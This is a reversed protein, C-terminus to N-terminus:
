VGEAVFVPRQKYEKLFEDVGKWYIEKEHIGGVCLLSDIEVNNAGLIDTEM